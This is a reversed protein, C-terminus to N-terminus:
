KKVGNVQKHLGDNVKHACSHSELNSEVVFQLLLDAFPTKENLCVM